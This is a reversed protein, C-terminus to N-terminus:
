KFQGVNPEAETDHRTTERTKRRKGQTSLVIPNSKRKRQRWLCRLFREQDVPVTPSVTQTDAVYDEHLGTERLPATPSQEAATSELSPTSAQLELAGDRDLLGDRDTVDRTLAVIRELGVTAVFERCFSDLTKELTEKFHTEYSSARERYRIELEKLRKGQEIAQELLKRRAAVPASVIEVNFQDIRGNIEAEQEQYEETPSQIADFKSDYHAVINSVAYFKAKIDDPM